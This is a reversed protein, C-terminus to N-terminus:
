MPKKKKEPNQAMCARLREQNATAEIGEEQSVSNLLPWFLKQMVDCLLQAKVNQFDFTVVEKKGNVSM